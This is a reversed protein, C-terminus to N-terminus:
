VLFIIGIRACVCVCATNTCTHAHMHCLGAAPPLKQKDRCRSYGRGGQHQQVECAQVMVKVRKRRGCGMEAETEGESLSSLGEEEGEGEVGLVDEVESSVGEVSSEGEQFGLSLMDEDKVCPLTLLDIGPGYQGVWMDINERPPRSATSSTVAWNRSLHSFLLPPLGGAGFGRCNFDNM